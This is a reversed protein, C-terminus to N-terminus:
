DLSFDSSTKGPNFLTEDDGFSKVDKVEIKKLHKAEDYTMVKGAEVEAMAYKKNEAKPLWMDYNTYGSKSEYEKGAVCFELFKGKYEATKSFANVFDEITEHKGDQNRFWENIGLTNCLNQLFIMVSRDRQIKIGSKTEGDAFAYQSAKIRGIQGEYRGQSEDDKDILFGEFGEIPETEVHLILHMAGPIFRFDELEISNIKLTHNGPAITKAMGSGGTGLDTTSLAM